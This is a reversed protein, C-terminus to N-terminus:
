AVEEFINFTPQPPEVPEVPPPAAEASRGHTRETSLPDAAYAYTRGRPRIVAWTYKSAIADYDARDVVTWLGRPLPIRVETPGIIVEGSRPVRMRRRSGPICGYPRRLAM